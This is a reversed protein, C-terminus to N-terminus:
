LKEVAQLDEADQILYRCKDGVFRLIHNLPDTGQWTIREVGCVHCEMDKRNPTQCYNDDDRTGVERPTAGMRKRKPGAEGSAQARRCKARAGSTSPHDCNSHNIM